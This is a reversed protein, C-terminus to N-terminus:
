IYIVHIIIIFQMEFIKDKGHHFYNCFNQLLDNKKHRTKFPEM